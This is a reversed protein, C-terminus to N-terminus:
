GNNDAINRAADDLAMYNESGDRRWTRIVTEPVPDTSKSPGM